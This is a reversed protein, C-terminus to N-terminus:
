TGVEHGLGTMRFMEVSAAGNEAACSLSYGSFEPSVITLVWLDPMAPLPRESCLNIESPPHLLGTGQAKLIAEKQTWLGFLRQRRETEDTIEDLHCREDPCFAPAIDEPRLDRWAEVDVGLRGHRGALGILCVALSQSHSFSFAWKGDPLGPRGLSDAGLAGLTDAPARNELLFLAQALLFRVILRAMRDEERVNGRISRAEREPLLTLLRLIVVKKEAADFDERRAYFLCLAGAQAREVLRQADRNL